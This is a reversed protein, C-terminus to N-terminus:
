IEIKKKKKYILIFPINKKESKRGVGLAFDWKGSFKTNSQVNSMCM